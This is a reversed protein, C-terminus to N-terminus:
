CISEHLRKVPGNAGFVAFHLSSPTCASSSTWGTRLSVEVAEGSAEDRVLEGGRRKKGRHDMAQEQSESAPLFHQKRRSGTLVVLRRARLALKGLSSGVLWSVASAPCASRITVIVSCCALIKFQFTLCGNREVHKRYHLLNGALFHYRLKHWVHLSVAQPPITGFATASHTSPLFPVLKAGM